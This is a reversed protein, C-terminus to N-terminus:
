DLTSYVKEFISRAIQLQQEPVLQYKKKAVFFFTMWLCNFSSLPWEIEWGQHIWKEWLNEHEFDAM